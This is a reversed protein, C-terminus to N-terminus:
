RVVPALIRFAGPLGHQDVLRNKTRVIAYLFVVMLATGTLSGWIPLAKKLPEAIVGYVMEIHIWYVFLSSRGM